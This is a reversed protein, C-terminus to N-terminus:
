INVIADSKEQIIRDNLQIHFRGYNKKLTGNEEVKKVTKRLENENFGIRVFFIDSGMVEQYQLEDHPNNIELDNIEYIHSGNKNFENEQSIGVILEVTKYRKKTAPDYRYKVCVLSEGYQRVYKKTGPQGPQLIKHIEM